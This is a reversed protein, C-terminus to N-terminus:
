RSPGLVSGRGRVEFEDMWEEMGRGGTGTRDRAGRSARSSGSASRVGAALCEEPEAWQEVCV